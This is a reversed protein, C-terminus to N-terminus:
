RAMVAEYGTVAQQLSFQKAREILRTRSPPESMTALIADAMADAAGVPVLSGFRGGDLIERPGSPCDTSVVPCGCAMAEILVTPLGEWVSSLVFVSARRYFAFPNHVHGPFDVSDSVGLASALVRLEAEESGTGLIILRAPREERVRAFAKLLTPFDKQPKLKGAGLVVPQNGSVLWSHEVEAEALASLEPRYIPNYITTIRDRPLGTIAAVDDAVGLSVAVIGDAKRFYRRMLRPVSRVWKSENQAAAVSMTNHVSVVFRTREPSLLRALLLVVNPYNLLSLIAQPRSSRIYRRLAAIPPEDKWLLRAVPGICADGSRLLAAPASLVGQAFVRALSRRNALTWEIDRRLNRITVNAHQSRLEDLLWGGDEEVLFDVRHGREALGRAVNVAVREAGRASEVSRIYIALRM